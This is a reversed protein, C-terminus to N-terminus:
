KTATGCISSRLPFLLAIPPEFEVRKFDVKSFGASNIVEDTNVLLKIGDFLFPFFPALVRQVVRAKDGIKGFVNELFFFEGEREGRLRPDAVRNETAVVSGDMGRRM